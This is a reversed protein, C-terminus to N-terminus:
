VGFDNWNWRGQRHWNKSCALYILGGSPTGVKVYHHPEHPWIIRLALSATVYSSAPDRLGSLDFTIVWVFLSMRARWSPPQAHPYSGVGSFFKRELFKLSAESPNLLCVVVQSCPIHISKQHSSFLQFRPHISADQSPPWPGSLATAGCISHFPFSIFFMHLAFEPSLSISFYFIYHWFLSDVRQGQLHVNVTWCVM